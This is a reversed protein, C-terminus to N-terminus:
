QSIELALGCPLRHYTTSGETWIERGSPAFVTGLGTTKLAALVEVAVAYAAAPPIANGILKRQQAQTGPFTLWDGQHIAPFSQLVALELTTLPRHYTGDLALIVVHAESRKPTQTRTLDLRRGIGLWEVCPGEDTQVLRHTPTFLAGDMRWGKRPRGDSAEPAARRRGRSAVRKKPASPLLGALLQGLDTPTTASGLARTSGEVRPDAGNPGHFTDARSIVTQAPEQADTIGFSGARPEYSLRPDQTVREDQTAFAGATTDASAIITGSPEDSSQVGYGGSHPKAKPLRPDQVHVAQNQGQVRARITRSPEDSALVGFAGNQREGRPALEVRGEDTASWYVNTRHTAVVAHAQRESAEVGLQGNQRGARLPLSTQVRGESTAGWANRSTQNGIVTRAPQHAAQVGLAGKHAQEGLQRQVNVRGEDTAGWASRITQASIVTRAPEHADQVGLVGNHTGGYEEYRVNVRGDQLAHRAIKPDASATVTAAAEDQPTVGYAGHFRGADKVQPNVREDRLSGHANAGKMSGIVAHAPHADDQVGMYGAHRNPLPEIQPNVRPDDQVRRDRTSAKGTDMRATALVTAAPRQDDMVGYHGGHKAANAGIKVSAPLDRWDKGARILALRLANLDSVRPLDHMPGGAGSGPIPTPLSGLVEAIGLVRQKPPHLVWAPCQEPDRAMLLYRERHQALGGIEGCDHYQENFVYGLARLTDRVNDLVDNSRAKIGSVNEFFIVAPKKGWPGRATNAVLEIVIEALRNLDQYKATLSMKKPLCKSNGQCPASLVVVTPCPSFEALEAPTAAVLDMQAVPAGTLYRAAKCAQPDNDVGRVDFGAMQFGLM